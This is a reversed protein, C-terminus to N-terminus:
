FSSENASSRAAHDNAVSCRRKQGTIWSWEHFDRSARWRYWGSLVVLTIVGPRAAARLGGHGYM